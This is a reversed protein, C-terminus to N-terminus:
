RGEQFKVHFYSADPDAPIGPVSTAPWMTKDQSEEPEDVGRAKRCEPTERWEMHAEISTYGFVGYLCISEKGSVKEKPVGDFV